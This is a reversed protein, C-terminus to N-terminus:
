QLNPQQLAQAKDAGKRCTMTPTFLYMCCTSPSTGRSSSTRLISLVATSRLCRSRSSTRTACPRATAIAAPQSAAPCAAKALHQTMEQCLRRLQRSARVDQVLLDIRPDLLAHMHACQELSTRVRQVLGQKEWQCACVCVVGAVGSGVMWLTRALRSPAATAAASAASSASACLPLRSRLRSSSATSAALSLCAFRGCEVCKRWSLDSHLPKQLSTLRLTRASRM